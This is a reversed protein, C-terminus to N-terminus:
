DTKATKTLFQWVENTAFEEVKTLHSSPDFKMETSLLRPQPWVFVTEVFIKKSEQFFSEIKIEIQVPNEEKTAPPIVLRLGGGLVPKKQLCAFDEPKQGLRDEWLYKFAHDSCSYLHRLTVGCQLIQTPQSLWIKRFCECVFEAEKTFLGLTNAPREATIALSSVRPGLSAVKIHLHSPDTRVFTFDRIGTDTRSFELQNEALRKQFDLRAMPDGPWEIALVYSINSYITQKSGKNPVDM